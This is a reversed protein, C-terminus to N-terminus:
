NANLSDLIQEMKDLDARISDLETESQDITQDISDLREIEIQEVETKDEQPASTCAALALLLIMPYHKM